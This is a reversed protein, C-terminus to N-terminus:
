HVYGNGIEQAQTNQFGEYSAKIFFLQRLTLDQFWEAFENIEEDSYHDKEKTQITKKIDNM